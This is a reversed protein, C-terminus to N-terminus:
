CCSITWLRACRTARWADRPHSRYQNHQDTGDCRRVQNTPTDYSYGVANHDYGPCGFPGPFPVTSLTTAVTENAKHTSGSLPVQVWRVGTKTVLWWLVLRKMAFYKWVKSSLHDDCFLYMNINSVAIVYCSTSLKSDVVVTASRLSSKYMGDAVIGLWGSASPRDRFPEGEECGRQVAEDRHM